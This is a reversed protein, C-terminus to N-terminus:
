VILKNFGWWFVRHSVMLIMGYQLHPFQPVSPHLGKSPLPLAPLLVPSSFEYGHKLGARVDVRTGVEQTTTLTLTFM